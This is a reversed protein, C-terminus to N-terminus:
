RAAFGVTEATALAAQYNDILNRVSVETVDILPAPYFGFLITLLILPAMVAIERSNMDTILKLSEKDMAGFVVRRYLWLAYAASLVVGTTAM